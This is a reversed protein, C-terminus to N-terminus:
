GEDANLAIDLLEITDQWWDRLWPHIPELLAQSLEQRTPELQDKSHGLSAYHSEAGERNGERLDCVWTYAAAEIHGIKAADAWAREAVQIDGGRCMAVLAYNSLVNAEADS